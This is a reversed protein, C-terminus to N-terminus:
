KIYKRKTILVDGVIFDNSNGYIATAIQNLDLDKLKGEENVIMINGQTLASDKVAVIEIYGGVFDQLEKLTFKKNDKPSVYEIDGNAKIHISDIM